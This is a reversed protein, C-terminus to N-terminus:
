LASLSSRAVDGFRGAKVNSSDAFRCEMLLFFIEHNEKLLFRNMVSGLGDRCIM